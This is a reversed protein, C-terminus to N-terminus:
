PSNLLPATCSNKSVWNKRKKKKRGGSNQNKLREKKVSQQRKEVLAAGSGTRHWHRTQFWNKQKLSLHIPGWGPNCLPQLTADSRQQALFFFGNIDPIVPPNSHGFLALMFILFCCFTFCQHLCAATTRWPSVFCAPHSTHMHFHFSFTDTMLFCIKNM